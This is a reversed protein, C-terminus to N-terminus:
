TRTYDLLIVEGSEEDYRRYQVAAFRSTSYLVRWSQRTHLTSHPYAPTRIPAIKDVSWSCLILSLVGGGVVRLVQLM